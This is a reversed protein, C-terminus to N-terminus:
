TGSALSGELQKTKQSVGREKKLIKLLRSSFQGLALKYTNVALYPLRLGTQTGRKTAQSSRILKLQTVSRALPPGGLSRLKKSSIKGTVRMLSTQTTTRTKQYALLGGAWYKPSEISVKREVAAVQM